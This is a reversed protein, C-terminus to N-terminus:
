AALKRRLAALGILAAGLLGITSGADPTPVPLRGGVGNLSASFSASGNADLTVVIVQTLSFSGLALTAAADGTYNPTNFLGLNSLAIGHGFLANGADAFTSYSISGGPTITGGIHSDFDGNFPGYFIESFMITLTGGATGTVHMSDLSLMPNTASGSAPQTVGTTMNITFNGIAGNFTVVGSSSMMSGMHGMGDNLFLTPTAQASWVVGVFVVAGLLGKKLM